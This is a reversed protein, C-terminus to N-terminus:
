GQPDEEGCGLHIAEAMRAKADRAQPRTESRTPAHTYNPEAKHKPPKRGQSLDPSTQKAGRHTCAAAHQARTEVPM